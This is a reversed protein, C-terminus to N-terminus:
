IEYNKSNIVLDKPIMIYSEGTYSKDQYIAKNGGGLDVLRFVGYKFDYVDTPLSTYDNFDDSFIVQSAFTIESLAVIVFIVLIIRTAALPMHHILKNM